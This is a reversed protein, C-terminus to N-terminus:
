ENIDIGKQKLYEKILNNVITSMPKKEKKAQKKIAKTLQKNSYVSMVCYDKKVSM